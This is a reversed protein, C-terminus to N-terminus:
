TIACIARNGFVYMEFEHEMHRGPGPLVLNRGIDINAIRIERTKLSEM